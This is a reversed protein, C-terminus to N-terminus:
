DELRVQPINHGGSFIEDNRLQNRLGKDTANSAASRAELKGRKERRMDRLRIWLLSVCRTSKERNKVIFM